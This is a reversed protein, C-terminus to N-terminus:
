TSSFDFNTPQLVPLNASSEGELAVLTVGAQRM